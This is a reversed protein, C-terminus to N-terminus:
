KKTQAAVEPYHEQLCQECLAHSFVAESHEQMYTELEQWIQEEDRIRKCHMCIPILGQLRKVHALAEQLEKVKESLLAKQRLMREGAKIRSKLEMPEFPKTVYDDAGAEMGTVIDKKQERATLLITYIYNEESKERVRRCLELGDMEPMMWDVIALKLSPDEDLLRLAESGNTAEVFEFGWEHLLVKLMRLSVADDDVILVRM